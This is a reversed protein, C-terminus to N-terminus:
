IWNTLHSLQLNGNLLSSLIQIYIHLSIFSFSIFFGCYISFVKPRGYSQKMAAGNVIVELEYRDQSETCSVVQLQNNTSAISRPNLKLPISNRVPTQRFMGLCVFPFIVTSSSIEIAFAFHLDTLGHDKPLLFTVSVEELKQDATHKTSLQINDIYHSDKKLDNTVSLIGNRTVMQSMYGIFQESPVLVLRMLSNMLIHIDSCSPACTLQFQLVERGAFWDQQARWALQLSHPILPFMLLSSLSPSQVWASRSILSQVIFYFTMPTYMRMGCMEQPYPYSEKIFFCLKQLQILASKVDPSVNLGINASYAPVKKWTLTVPNPANRFVNVPICSGLRLHNALRLGYLTPIMSLPCCLSSEVYELVSPKLSQWNMSETMLLSNPEDDLCNSAAHLLNAPGAHDAVNSTDIVQFQNKLQPDSLCLVLCDGIHFYFVVNEKLTGFKVFREKLITQCHRLLIQGDNRDVLASSNLIPVFGEVPCALFHVLWQNTPVELLTPNICVEKGDLPKCNGAKFFNKLEKSIIKQMEKPCEALSIRSEFLEVVKTIICNFSGSKLNFAESDASSTSQQLKISLFDSIYRERYPFYM